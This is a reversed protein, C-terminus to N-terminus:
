DYENVTFTDMGRKFAPDGSVGSYPQLVATDAAQAELDRAMQRYAEAQQSFSAQLNGVSRDAKRSFKAAIAVCCSSAALYVKGRQGLQWAIEEDTVLPDNSDTDGILFRVADKDSDAPNGSYSFAM